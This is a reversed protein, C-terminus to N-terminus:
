RWLLEAWEVDGIPPENSKGESEWLCRRALNAGVSPGAPQVWGSCAPAGEPLALTLSQASVSHYPEPTSAM